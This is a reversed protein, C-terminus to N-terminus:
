RLPGHDDGHGGHGHHLHGNVLDIAAIECEAGSPKRGGRAREIDARGLQARVRM